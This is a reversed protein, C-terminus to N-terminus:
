AFVDRNERLFRSLHDNIIRLLQSGMQTTKETDKDCLPVSTMEGVPELKLFEERHDFEDLPIRCASADKIEMVAIHGPAKQTLEIM